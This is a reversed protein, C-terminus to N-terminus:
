TIGNMCRHLTLFLRATIETHTHTHPTHPHATTNKHSIHKHKSARRAYGHMLICMVYRYTRGTLTSMIIRLQPLNVGLEAFVCKSATHSVSVFCLAPHHIYVYMDLTFLFFCVCLYSMRALTRVYTNACVPVCVCVCVCV